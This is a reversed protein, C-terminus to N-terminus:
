KTFVDFRKESDKKNELYWRMTELVGYRLDWSPVFGYKKARSTDMKRIKDGSPKTTDYEVKIDKATHVFYADTVAKVIERISVGEGSGLNVPETIGKEVCHIMGRAVDHAHIFDRVATGDGWVKLPNEGGCVRAILSPIVMATEPNFNDWEGYVNAPRVISINNLGYEKNYAEVNLELMRKAWGAFKDNESPFTSWVDDEYFVKAPAYVGVSSTVLMWEAKSRRFADIMAANFLMMPVSFSYPKEACMKPSGKIGALHFVYDQGECIMECIDLYRLDVKVCKVGEIKSDDMSVSTIQAPNHTKLIDILYRGVMGTGGSVLIRKNNFM